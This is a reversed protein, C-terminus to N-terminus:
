YAGGTDSAPVFACAGDEIVCEGPCVMDCSKDSRSVQWKPECVCMACKNIECHEPGTVRCGGVAWMGLLILRM